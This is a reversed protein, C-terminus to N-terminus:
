SPRLPAQNTPQRETFQQQHPPCSKPANFRKQIKCFKESDFSFAIKLPARTFLSVLKLHLENNSIENFKRFELSWKKLHRSTFDRQAASSKMRSSLLFRFLSTIFLQHPMVLSRLWQMEGTVSRWLGAPANIVRRYVDVRAGRRAM